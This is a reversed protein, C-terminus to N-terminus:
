EREPSHFRYTRTFRATEKPELTLLINVEPSLQFATTWLGINYAPLSSEIKLGRGSALHEVAMTNPGEYDPPAFVYTKATPKDVASPEAFSLVRDNVPDFIAPRTPSPRGYRDCLAYRYPFVIRYDPGLDHDGFRLFNHLYQETVFPRRGTNRLTYELVIAENELSLDVDLECAYGRVSRSLRQRFTAGDPRWDVDTKAKEIDPYDKGFRYEDGTKALIGVGIKLFPEGEAAETFGPPLTREKIDFEMPIGGLFERPKDNIAAYVFPEGRFKVQAIFAAPSFRDRHLYEPPLDSPDLVELALHGDASRLVRTGRHRREFDRASVAAPLVAWLLLATVVSRPRVPFASAYFSKM